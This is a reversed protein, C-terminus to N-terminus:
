AQKMAQTSGNQSRGIGISYANWIYGPQRPGTVSPATALIYVNAAASMVQLTFQKV